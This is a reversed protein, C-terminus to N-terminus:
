ANGALQAVLCDSNGGTQAENWIRLLMESNETIWAIIPKNYKSHLSGEIRSCGQVSFSAVHYQKGYDIHIHPMAHGKEQYMKLKIDKLKILLFENFGTRTHRRPETLLDIEALKRQLIETIKQYSMPHWDATNWYSIPM